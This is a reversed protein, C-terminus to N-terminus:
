SVTLDTDEVELDWKRYSRIGVKTIKEINRVSKVRQELERLTAMQSASSHFGATAAVRLTPAALGPLAARTARPLMAM